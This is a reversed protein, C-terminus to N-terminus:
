VRVTAILVKNKDDQKHLLDAIYFEGEVKVTTLNKFELLYLLDDNDEVKGQRIVISSTYHQREVGFYYDSYREFESLPFITPHKSAQSPAYLIYDVEAFTTFVTRFIEDRIEEKHLPEAKFFWLWISKRVNAHPGSQIAKELFDEESAPPKTQFAAFGAIADSEDIAVVSLYSNEILSEVDYDGYNKTLVFGEEGILSIIETEDNLTARRVSLSIQEPEDDVESHGM